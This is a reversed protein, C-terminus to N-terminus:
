LAQFSRVFEFVLRITIERAQIPGPATYTKRRWGTPTCVLDRGVLRWNLVVISHYTITLTTRWLRVSLHTGQNRLEEELNAALLLLPASPDLSEAV